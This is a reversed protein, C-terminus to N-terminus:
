IKGKGVVVLKGLLEFARGIPFIRIKTRELCANLEWTTITRDETYLVRRKPFICINEPRIEIITGSALCGELRGLRGYYWCNEDCLHDTGPYIILDYGM